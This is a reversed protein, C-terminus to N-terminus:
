QRWLQMFAIIKLQWAQSRTLNVALWGDPVITRMVRLFAMGHNGFGACYVEFLIQALHKILHLMPVITDDNFFITIRNRHQNIGPQKFAHRTHLIMKVHEALPNLMAKGIDRFLLAHGFDIGRNSQYAPLSYIAVMVM